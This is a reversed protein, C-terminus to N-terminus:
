HGHMKRKWKALHFAHYVDTNCGCKRQSPFLFWLVLLVVNCIVEFMLNPLVSAFDTIKLSFM